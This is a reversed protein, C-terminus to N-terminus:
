LRWLLNIYLVLVLALSKFWPLLIIHVRLVKQFTISLKYWPSRRRLWPPRACRILLLLIRSTWDFFQINFLAWLLVCWFSIWSSWNYIKLASIHLNFLRLVIRSFVIFVNVRWWVFDDFMIVEQRLMVAIVGLFLSYRIGLRWLLLLLHGISRSFLLFRHRKDLRLVLLRYYGILLQLSLGHLLLLPLRHLGHM